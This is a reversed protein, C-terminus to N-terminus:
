KIIDIIALYNTQIIVYRSSEILYRIKKIM